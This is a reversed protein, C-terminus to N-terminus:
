TLLSNICRQISAAASLAAELKSAALSIKSIDAAIDEEAM